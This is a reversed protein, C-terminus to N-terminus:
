GDAPKPPRSTDAEGAFHERYWDSEFWARSVHTHFDLSIAGWRQDDPPVPLWDHATCSWTGTASDQVPQHGQVILALVLLGETQADAVRLASRPEVPTTM